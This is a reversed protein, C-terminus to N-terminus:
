SYFWALPYIKLVLWADRQMSRSRQYYTILAEEGSFAATPYASDYGSRNEITRINTWTKGQDKSIASNLPNRVGGHGAGPEYNHNFLVLLDGKGPIVKLAPQSAPAVLSTAEPESWTEGRDRSVSKYIRGMSSRLISLLSRDQLEVIGPEEAGRKPLDMRTRSQNWTRGNDDSYFCFATFHEGEKWIYPSWYAPLIVRGSSHVFGRDANTLWFGPKDTLIQPKGWTECEDASRRLYIRSDHKSFDRVTFFMLVEGSPLRVLNPHKVCDVAINEQLTFKESWTRGRDTSIKGSLQCPAEDGAGGPTYPTRLIRSPRRVYYESWILLLRGGSLAFIQAHDHRPNAASWPCVTLEYAENRPQAPAALAGALSAM